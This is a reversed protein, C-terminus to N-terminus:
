LTCGMREALKYEREWQQRLSKDCEFNPHFELKRVKAVQRHCATGPKNDNTNWRPDIKEGKCEALAIGQGLLLAAFAAAGIVSAPVKNM